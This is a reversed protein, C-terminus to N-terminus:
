SFPTSDHRILVNYFLRVDFLGRKSPNWCFKEIGDHKLNIFYLQDFFLSFFDLEWDHTAKVFNINWQPSGNSFQLHNDV